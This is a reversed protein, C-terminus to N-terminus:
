QHTVFIKQFYTFSFIIHYSSRIAIIQTREKLVDQNLINRVAGHYTSLIISLRNDIIWDIAIMHKRLATLSYKQQLFNEDKANHLTYFSLSEQFLKRSTRLHLNVYIVTVIMSTYLLISSFTKGKEKTPVSLHIMFMSTLRQIQAITLPSLSISKLRNRRIWSPLNGHTDAESTGWIHFSTANPIVM